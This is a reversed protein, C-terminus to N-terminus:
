RPRGRRDAVRPRQRSARLELMRAGRARAAALAKEFCEEAERTASQARPGARLLLEGRLRWLEAEFLREGTDRCHALGTDAAALGEDARDLELCAGALFSMWLALGLRLEARKLLDLGERIEALGREGEGQGVRARGRNVLATGLWRPFGYEESLDVARTAVRDAEAWQGDLVLVIANFTAAHAITFPRGFRDALALAEAQVARARDPEARAWRRLGEFSRAGVLPNVAYPRDAAELGVPSSLARALFRGAVDLNGSWVDAAGRLFCAELVASPDLRESLPSLERGVREVQDFDCRNACLLLLACMVDFRGAPDALRECLSRTRTLNELLTEAAYGATQSLVTTYLQRLRLENRARDPADPLDGLLRLAPELCAVADRYALREYARRAAQELYAVARRRDRSRQFHGALEGSVEATRGAHGAELREGVRQHLLTRRSPSLRDYLVRQYLAHGFAYRGALTGDPWEASGRHDLWPHRRCLEDCLSDVEDLPRDIGAAVAPADFTVGAVSAVELVDREARSVLRLQGEILQQIDAPVDQEITAPTATLRWAGGDEILWGRALLHDVLGVMFLPNGDTHAHVVAAVADPVEAGQFRRRLYAAVDNRSLYELAIETCRRRARLTAVVQALPHDLVTVEAPRYTGLLLVRAREPRQALVSVVDVTGHDSSHLDELVLVLPSDVSAEEVLSAFERLMRHPTTNIDARRLQEADAPSHLSPIQELWRPAVARMVPRLRDGAPGHAMRELAELVPMYPERDGHQEVCQGYGILLSNSSAKLADLFAEVLSTKGIGPEGAVLVVQREGAAAKHFLAWLTALEGDRGVLAAAPPAPEAALVPAAGRDEAPVGRVRAIFRVGRRHVTEIVRPAKPDDQLARRLEGLTQTLTEDSVVVDGWVAAHLEEKTVLAGPRDILYCLLAWAKPRLEVLRDGHWLRASRPDLRYPPFEILGRAM